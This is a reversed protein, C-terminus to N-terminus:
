PRLRVTRVPSSEYVLANVAKVEYVIFGTGNRFDREQMVRNGLMASTLLLYYKAYADIDAQTPAGPLHYDYFSNGCILGGWVETTLSRSGNLQWGVYKTIQYGCPTDPSLITLTKSHWDFTLQQPTAPSHEQNAFCLSDCPNAQPQASIFLFQLMFLLTIAFVILAYDQKKM